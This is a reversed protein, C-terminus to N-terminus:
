NKNIHVVSPGSGDDPYSVDWYGGQGDPAWTHGAEPGDQVWRRSPGSGDDPYYTEYHGSMSINETGKKTRNLFDAAPLIAALTGTALLMGGEKTQMITMSPLIQKTAKKASKIGNRIAYNSTVASIRMSM